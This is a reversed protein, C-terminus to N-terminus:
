IETVSIGFKQSRFISIQQQVHVLNTESGSIGLVVTNEM